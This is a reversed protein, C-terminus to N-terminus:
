QRATKHLPAANEIFGLAAAVRRAKRAPVFEVVIVVLVMLILLAPIWPSDLPRPWDTRIIIYVSLLAAFVWYGHLWLRAKRSLAPPPIERKLRNRLRYNFDESLVPPEMGHGARLLAGHAFWQARCSACEAAHREFAQRERDAQTTGSLVLEFRKFEDCGSAM